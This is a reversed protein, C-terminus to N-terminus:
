DDGRIPATFADTRTGFNGTGALAAVARGALEEPTTVRREPTIKM